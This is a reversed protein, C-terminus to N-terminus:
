KSEGAQHPMLNKITEAQEQLREMAQKDGTEPEGSGSEIRVHIQFMEREVRLLQQRAIQYREDEGLVLYEYESSTM